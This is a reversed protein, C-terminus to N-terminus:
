VYAATRSVDIANGCFAANDTVLKGTKHGTALASCSPLINTVKHLGSSRRVQLAKRVWEVPQHSLGCHDVRRVLRECCRCHEQHAKNRHAFESIDKRGRCLASYQNTVTCALTSLSCLRWIRLSGRLSFCGVHTQWLVSSASRWSDAIALM